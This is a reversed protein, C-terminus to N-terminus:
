SIKSMKLDNKVANSGTKINQFPRNQASTLDKYRRTRKQINM